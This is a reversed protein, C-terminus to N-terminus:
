THGWAFYTPVYLKREGRKWAQQDLRKMKQIEENSISLALDSELVRWEIEWEEASPATGANQITGTEVIEIGASSFLDALRAGVGPDAGQRKLSEMQWRGLLTLERPEDVRATYDPEAFAMIQGGSNAVRKM